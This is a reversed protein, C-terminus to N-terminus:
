AMIKVLGHSNSRVLNMSAYALFCLLNIINSHCSFSLPHYKYAPSNGRPQSFLTFTTFRRAGIFFPKTDQVVLGLNALLPSSEELAQESRTGYLPPKGGMPLITRSPEGGEKAQVRELLHEVVPLGIAKRELAMRPHVEEM